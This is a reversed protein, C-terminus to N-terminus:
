KEEGSLVEFPLRRSFAMTTNSLGRGGVRPRDCCLVWDPRVRERHELSATPRERFPFRRCEMTFVGEEVM